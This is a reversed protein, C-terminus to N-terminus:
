GGRGWKMFVWQAAALYKTTIYDRDKEVTEFFWYGGSQFARYQKLTTAGFESGFLVKYAPVRNRGVRRAGGAKIVPVRDKAARVTPVMLASQPNTRAAARIDVAVVNAIRLSAVRMEDSADDPLQNYARITERIGPIRITVTITRKTM